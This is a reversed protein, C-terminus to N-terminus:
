AMLRANLLINAASWFGAQEVTDFSIAGRSSSEVTGKLTRDAHLVEKVRNALEYIAKNSEQMNERTVGCLIRFKLITEYPNLSGVEVEVPEEETMYIGIEPANSLGVEPPNVEVKVGGIYPSALGASLLDRIAEAITQYPIDM